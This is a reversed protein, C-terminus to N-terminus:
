GDRNQLLDLIAGSVNRSVGTSPVHHMDIYPLSNAEIVGCVQHKWSQSIDPCIFDIGILDAGCLHAIREFMEVNDVHTIHTVDHIDAGTALTIKKNLYIKRNSLPVTNLSIGQEDLFALTSKTLAIKHLTFSNQDIDGRKADANKLEILEAIDHKGDGIINPAERMCSAVFKGGVVTIRYIDGSIFREVVFDKKLIQSIAVARRLEERSAVGVTTHKSLSGSLPKVVVPFNIKEIVYDVAQDYNVFSQGSPNPIGNKSLVKKFEYKDDFNFLRKNCPLIKFYIKRNSFTISFISSTLGFFTLVSVDLGRNKSEHLLVMTRNSIKDTEVIKRQGMIRIMLLMHLLSHEIHNSLKDIISIYRSEIFHVPRSVLRVIGVNGMKELFHRPSEEYPDCHSCYKGENKYM